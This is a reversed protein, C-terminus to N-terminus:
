TCEDLRSWPTWSNDLWQSSRWYCFDYGVASVALFGGSDVYIRPGSVFRGDMGVFNSWGTGGNPDLQWIHFMEANWGVGFVELRGDRNAAGNIEEFHFNGGMKVPGTMRGTWPVMEWQHYLAHEDNVNIWFHEARGDKNRLWLDKVGDSM